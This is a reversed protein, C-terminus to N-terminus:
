SADIEPKRKKSEEGARPIRPSLSGIAFGGGEKKGKFVYAEDPFHCSWLAVLINKQFIIGLATTGLREPVLSGTKHVQPPSPKMCLISGACASLAESM